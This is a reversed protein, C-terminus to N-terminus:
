ESWIIHCTATCIALVQQVRPDFVLEVSIGRVAWSKRGKQVGQDPWIQGSKPATVRVRISFVGFIAKGRFGVSITTPKSGHNEPRRGVREAHSRGGSSMVQFAVAAM